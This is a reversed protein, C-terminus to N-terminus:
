PALSQSLIRVAHALPTQEERREQPESVMANLGNNPEECEGDVQSQVSLMISPAKCSETGAEPV